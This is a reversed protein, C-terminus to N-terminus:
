VFKRVSCVFSRVIILEFGTTEVTLASSTLCFMIFVVVVITSVLVFVESFITSVVRSMLSGVRGVGVLAITVINSLFLLTTCTTPSFDITAGLTEVRGVRSLTM